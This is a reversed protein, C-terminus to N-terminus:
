SNLQLIITNVKNEKSFFVQLQADEAKLEWVWYTVGVNSKYTRYNSGLVKAVAASDDGMRIGKVPEGKWDGWFLCARVVKKNVSFGFPGYDLTVLDQVPSTMRVCYVDTPTDFTTFVKVLRGGLMNAVAESTPLPKDPRSPQPTDELGPCMFALVLATLRWSM